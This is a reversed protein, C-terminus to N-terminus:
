KGTKENEECLIMLAIVKLVYEKTEEPILNNKYLYWFNRHNLPDEIERLSARLVGDGANYAALTLMYSKVGFISLLDNIYRAAAVTSKEPDIREDIKKNVILGYQRATPAMFQWMGRAGSQPNYAKTNYYSEVFAIYSLDVPINNDTFIDEIMKQYKKRRELGMKYDESNKYKNIYANIKNMFDEDIKFEKEGYKEMIRYVKNGMIRNNLKKMLTKRLLLGGTMLIIFTIIIGALIINFYKTAIAKKIISSKNKNIDTNIEKYDASRTCDLIVKFKPGINNNYLTIIDGSFLEVPKNVKDWNLFTGNPTNLDELYYKNQIYSIQCHKRSVYPDTIILNNTDSRGITFTNENIIFEKNTNIDLLIAKM